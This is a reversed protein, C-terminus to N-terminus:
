GAVARIIAPMERALELESPVMGEWRRLAVLIAANMVRVQDKALDVQQQAIGLGVLDRAVAALDREADHLLRVWVNVTTKAVARDEVVEGDPGPSRTRTIRETGSTMQATQLEQVRARYFEVEGAKAYLLDMLAQQPTTVVPLGFREAAEQAQTRQASAVNNPM